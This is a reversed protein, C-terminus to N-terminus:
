PEASELLRISRRLWDNVVREVDTGNQQALGHLFLAVDEDLYVPINLKADPHFFKGLEGKTFDYEEKM